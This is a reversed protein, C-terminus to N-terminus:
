RPVDRGYGMDLIWFRDRPVGARDLAARLARPPEDEGDDGLPFTGFHMAVSTRAGLTQHARVAEEPSIHKDKMFWRPLYAGIPLIALRIDGIRERVQAFHPGWGTDGAFYVAGATGRIAWGAYLTADRDCLGRGSFHEAPVATVRVGHGVRASEWWEFDEAGGVGERVFLKRNGLGAFIRPHHRSALTRITPMDLHDYHNHSVLVVDIPPLDRMRLGPPRVRHPGVWSVPSGRYSWIPDTLFNLGDMQVLVTAHNVWTVRLAGRGVRRPPPPGPPVDHYESWPGPERELRWRLFDGAGKAEARRQTQFREGDFHDTRPGAYKPASFVCCGVGGGIALLGLVLALTGRLVRRIRRRM